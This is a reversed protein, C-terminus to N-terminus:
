PTLKAEDDKSGEESDSLNSRTCPSTLDVLRPVKGHRGALAAKGFVGGGKLSAIRGFHLGRDGFGM